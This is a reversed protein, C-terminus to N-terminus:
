KQTSNGDSKEVEIGEVQCVRVYSEWDRSDCNKSKPRPSKEVITFAGNSGISAIFPEGKHRKLALVISKYATLFAKGRVQSNYNNSAFYLVTTRGLAIAVMHPFFKMFAKDSTVVILGEKGCKYFIWPDRETRTFKDDHAIVNIGANKLQAALLIAGLNRDLLFQFEHRKHRAITSRRKM